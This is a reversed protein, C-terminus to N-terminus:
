KEKKTIMYCTTTVEYLRIYNEKDRGYNLMKEIVLNNFATKNKAHHIEGTIHDILTYTM